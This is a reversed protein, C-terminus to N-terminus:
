EIIVIMGVIIRYHEPSFGVQGTVKKSLAGGALLSWGIVM